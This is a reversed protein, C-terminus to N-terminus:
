FLREKFNGGSKRSPVQYLISYTGSHIGQPFANRQYISMGKKGEDSFLYGLTTMGALVFVPCCGCM